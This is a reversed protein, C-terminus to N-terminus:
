ETKQAFMVKQERVLGAPRGIFDGCKVEKGRGREEINGYVESIFRAADESLRSIRGLWMYYEDIVTLDFVDSEPTGEGIINEDGVLQYGKPDFFNKKMWDLWIPPEAYKGAICALRNDEDFFWTNTFKEEMVSYDEPCTEQNFKWFDILLQDNPEPLVELRGDARMWVGMFLVGEKYNLAL